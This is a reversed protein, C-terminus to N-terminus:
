ENGLDGSGRPFDGRKRYEAHGDFFVYNRGDSHPPGSQVGAIGGTNTYNEVDLDSIMWIMSLETIQRGEATRSVSQIQALTRPPNQFAASADGFFHAPVTDKNRNLIFVMKDNTAVTGDYNSQCIFPGPDNEQYEGMYDELLLSMCVNHDSWQDRPRDAGPRNPNLPSMVARRTPGPLVGNESEYTLIALGIQRQNSLCNIQHAKERVQGIVPILISALIGIIAIVTLLEILTFGHPKERSYIFTSKM